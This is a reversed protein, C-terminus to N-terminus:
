SLVTTISVQESETSRPESTTDWFDDLISQHAKLAAEAGGRFKLTVFATMHRSAMQKERPQYRTRFEMVLKIISSCYNRLQSAAIEVSEEQLQTYVMHFIM